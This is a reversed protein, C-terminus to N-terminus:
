GLREVPHEGRRLAAPVDRLASLAALYDRRPVVVQGLRALHESPQQTDLLVLGGEQMRALLDVLAAKSADAVRSFMSEGSFVAGTCVGYLGGVLRDGDWVEVSAAQGADFLAAYAERMPGTIWTEPREACGAVVERFAADVTTRWGCTRLRRRLSRPVHLTRPLLVARPDPSCWPVLGDRGPLVPLRGTRALRRAEREFAAASRGAPPWPFCGARYAAM